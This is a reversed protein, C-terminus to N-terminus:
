RTSQLFAGADASDESPTGIAFMSGAGAVLGAKGTFDTV